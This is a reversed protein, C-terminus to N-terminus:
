SWRARELLAVTTDDRLWKKQEALVVLSRGLHAPNEFARADRAWAHPLAADHALAGALGDTAILVSHARGLHHM